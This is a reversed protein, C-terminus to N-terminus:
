RSLNALQFMAADEAEADLRGRASVIVQAAAGAVERAIDQGAAM